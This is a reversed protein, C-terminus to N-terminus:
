RAQPRLKQVRFVGNQFCFVLIEFETSPKHPHLFYHRQFLFLGFFGPCQTVGVWCYRARGGGGFFTTIFMCLSFELLDQLHLLQQNDNSVRAGLPPPLM